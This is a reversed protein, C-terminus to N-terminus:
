KEIRVKLEDVDYSCNTYCTCYSENNVEIM